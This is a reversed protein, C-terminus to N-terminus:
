RGAALFRKAMEGYLARRCVLKSAGFALLSTAMLPVAMGPASNMELVIVAATIPAQVVGSFYAVMGLLVFTGGPVSPLLAALWHGFGAGIALSPAFIGGPIGSLYSIITALMKWLPFDATLGPRGEVLLRAQDYGTGYSAGGSAWGILALLLGCVIAFLVPRHLALRRVPAPLLRPGHILASSFVGGA